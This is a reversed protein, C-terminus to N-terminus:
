NLLVAILLIDRQAPKSTIRTATGYTNALLLKTIPYEGAPPTVTPWAPPGGKVDDGAFAARKKVNRYRRVASKGAVPGGGKEAGVSFVAGGSDAPIRQGGVCDAGYVSTGAM